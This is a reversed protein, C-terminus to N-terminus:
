LVHQTGNWPRHMTSPPNLCALWVKLGCEATTLEVSSKTETAPLHFALYEVVTFGQTYVAGRVQTLGILRM